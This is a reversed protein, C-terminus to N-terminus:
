TCHHFTEKHQKRVIDFTDNHTPCRGLDGQMLDFRSAGDLLLKPDKCIDQFVNVLESPSECIHTVKQHIRYKMRVFSECVHTVKQLILYKM